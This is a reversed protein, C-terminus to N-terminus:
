RVKKFFYCFSHATNNAINMSRTYVYDDTKMDYRIRGAATSSMSGDNSAYAESFSPDAFVSDVFKQVEQRQGPTLNDFYEPNSSGPNHVVIFMKTVPRDFIPGENGPAPTREELVFMAGLPANPSSTAYCRGSTWGSAAERSYGRTADFRRALEDARTGDVAVNTTAVSSVAVAATLLTTIM